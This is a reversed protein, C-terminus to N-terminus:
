GPRRHVVNKERWPKLDHHVLVLRISERGVPPILKRKVAEQRVLAITWRARGEPPPGCVMAVVRQKDATDWKPPIGPRAQDWLSRALGGQCYRWGICRVAEASLGVSRGAQPPSQGASLLRLVQARKVVRVPLSGKSLMEGIERRDQAKLQVRVRRYTRM